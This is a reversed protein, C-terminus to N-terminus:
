RSRFWEGPSRDVAAGGLESALSTAAEATPALIQINIGRVGRVHRVLHERARRQYDAGVEGHLTVWGKEVEAKV